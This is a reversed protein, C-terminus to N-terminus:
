LRLMVRASVDRRWLTHPEFGPDLDDDTFPSGGVAVEGRVVTEWRVGLSVRLSLSAAAGARVHSAAGSLDWREILPGMGALLSSDHGVTALRQTVEMAVGYVTLADKVAVVADGGELALGASAYYGQIAVSTAGVSRALVAGFLTPRFPRLSRDGSVERAGGWFRATTIAAGVAWQAAAASPAAPAVALAFAFGIRRVM